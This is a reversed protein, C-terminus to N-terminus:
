NIVFAKFVEWKKFDGNIVFTESDKFIVTIGGAAAGINAGVIMDTMVYYGKSYGFSIFCDDCVDDSERAVLGHLLGVGAGILTGEVISAGASKKTKIKGIDKLFFRRYVNSRKLGIVSDNVFAIRGVGIKKDNLNYVRVFMNSLSEPKQASALKPNLCIFLILVYVIVGM